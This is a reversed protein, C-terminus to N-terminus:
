TEGVPVLVQVLDRRVLRDLHLVNLGLQAVAALGTEGGSRSRYLLARHGVPQRIGRSVAPGVFLTEVAIAFAAALGSPDVGLSVSVYAAVFM